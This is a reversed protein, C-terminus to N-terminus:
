ITISFLFPHNYKSYNVKGLKQCLYSSKYYLINNENIFLTRDLLKGRKSLKNIRIGNRLANVITEEGLVANNISTAM